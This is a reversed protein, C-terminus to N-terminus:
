DHVLALVYNGREIHLTLVHRRIRVVLHLALM